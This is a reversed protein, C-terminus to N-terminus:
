ASMWKGRLEARHHRESELIEVIVERTTPDLSHRLVEEYWSVEASENAREAEWVAFAAAPARV